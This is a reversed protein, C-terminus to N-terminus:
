WNMFRTPPTSPSSSQGLLGALEDFNSTCAIVSHFVEASSDGRGRVVCRNNRMVVWCSDGKDSGIGSAGARSTLRMGYNSTLGGRTWVPEHRSILAPTAAFRTLLEKEYFSPLTENSLPPTDIGKVYSLQTLTRTAFHTTKIRSLHRAFMCTNM